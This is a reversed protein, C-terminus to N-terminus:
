NDRSIIIKPMCRDHRKYTTELVDNVLEVKVVGTCNDKPCRYIGPKLNGLHRDLSIKFDLPCKINALLKPTKEELWILDREVTM